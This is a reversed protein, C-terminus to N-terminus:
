KKSPYPLFDIQVDIRIEEAIKQFMVKPIKIEHDELLVNFVTTGSYGNGEKVLTITTEYPKTIGHITLDGSVKTRIENLKGKFEAVPYKDSEMYQTNFHDQMLSNEFNFSKIPVRFQVENTETNFFATTKKSTAEIDKLATESFFHITGKKSFFITQGLTEVMGLLIFLFVYLYRM